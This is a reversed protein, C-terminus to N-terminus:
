GYAKVIDRARQKAVDLLRGQRNVNEMSFSNDIYISLSAPGSVQKQHGEEPIFPRCFALILAALALCRATLVLIERLRSRSKSELQLERLFRVNSFYVKKYRRFNFLHIIVPVLVATLAWLFSPYLFTM